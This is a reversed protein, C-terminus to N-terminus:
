EHIAMLYETPSPGMVGDMTCVALPSRRVSDQNSGKHMMARIGFRTRGNLSNLNRRVYITPAAFLQATICRQYVAVNKTYSRCAVNDIMVLIIHAAKEPGTNLIM